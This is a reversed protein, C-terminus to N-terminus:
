NLYVFFDRVMSPTRRPLYFWCSRCLITGWVCRERRALSCTQTWGSWASPPRACSSASAQLLVTARAKSLFRTTRRSDCIEDVGSQCRSGRLFSFYTTSRAQAQHGGFGVPWQRSDRKGGSSIEAVLAHAHIQASIRYRFYGASDQADSSCHWKWCM